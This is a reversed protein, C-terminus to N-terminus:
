RAAEKDGHERDALVQELLEIASPVAAAVAHASGWAREVTVPECAVVLVRRVQGGLSGLMALIAGPELGHADVLAAEGGTVAAAASPVQAQDVELLSVTGPASGRPAADIVVLLDYGDLLQYALHVGRIGFDVVEVGEPLARGAMARVVETGFGDDSLFINGVGAVLIRNVSDAEVVPEVEDPAFYLFRGHWRQIEASEDDGDVIVGVHQEGDVDFLVAEVTATRGALFMDQADTRRRGPRLRVTSGRAVAVGDIIIADSAPSVSADAGPDWWPTSPSMLDGPPEPQPRADPRPGTVHRLYRLAGHLRDLQEPPLSDVQDIVAAARPDTARAEAKEADTLAM